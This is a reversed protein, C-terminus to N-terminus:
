YGHKARELERKLDRIMDGEIQGYTGEVARRFYFRGAMRSTGREVIEAHPAVKRDIAAIAMSPLNHRRPMQRAVPSRKLRGTPGRPAYERLADRMRKAGGMLIPEAKDPGVARILRQFTARLKDTGEISVELRDM